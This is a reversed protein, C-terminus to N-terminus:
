CNEYRPTLGVPQLVNESEVLVAKTRTEMRTEEEEGDLHLIEVEREHGTAEEELIDTSRGECDQSRRNGKISEISSHKLLTVKVYM